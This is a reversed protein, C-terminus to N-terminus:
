YDFITMQRYQEKKRGKAKPKNLQGRGEMNKYIAIVQANPMQSVRERWRWSDYANSVANRMQEISM